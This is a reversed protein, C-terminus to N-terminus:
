IESMLIQGLNLGLLGMKANVGMGASILELNRADIEIRGGNGEALTDAGFGGSLVKLDNAINLDIVGGDGEAFTGVGFGGFRIELNDADIQILGGDGKDNVESGFGGFQIAVNESINLHILGGDGQSFTNVGGGGYQVSMNNAIFNITGSNGIAGILTSSEASGGYLIISDGFIEIDGADGTGSTHAILNKEDKGPDIISFIVRLTSVSKAPVLM